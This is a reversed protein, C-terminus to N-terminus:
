FEISFNLVNLAMEGGAHEYAVYDVEMSHFYSVSNRVDNNYNVYYVPAGIIDYLYGALFIGISGYYLSSYVNPDDIRKTEVAVEAGVRTLLAVATCGLVIQGGRRDGLTFHALGSGPVMVGLTEAMILRGTGIPRRGSVEIDGSDSSVTSAPTAAPNQIIIQQIQVNNQSNQGTQENSPPAVYQTTVTIIQGDQTVTSQRITTNTQNQQQYEQRNQQIRNVLNDLAEEDSEPYVSAALLIFGAVLSYFFITKKM